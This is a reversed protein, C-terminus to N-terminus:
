SFCCLYTHVALPLGAALQRGQSGHMPSRVGEEMCNRRITLARFSAKLVMLVTGSRFRAQLEHDGAARQKQRLQLPGDAKDGSGDEESAEADESGDSAGGEDDDSLAFNEDLDDGGM